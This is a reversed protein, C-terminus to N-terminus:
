NEGLCYQNLEVCRESDQYKGYNDTKNKGVEVWALLFSCYMMWEESFIVTHLRSDLMSSWLDLNCFWKYFIIASKEWWPRQWNSPDSQTFCKLAGLVLVALCDFLKNGRPIDRKFLSSVWENHLGTYRWNHMRSDIKCRRVKHKSHSKYNANSISHGWQQVIQMIHVTIHQGIIYVLDTLDFKGSSHLLRGIIIKQVRVCDWAKLWPQFCM